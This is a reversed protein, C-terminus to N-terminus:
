TRRAIAPASAAADVDVSPTARFAAGARFTVGSTSLEDDPWLPRGNSSLRM